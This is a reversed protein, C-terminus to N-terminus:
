SRSTSSPFQHVSPLGYLTWQVPVSTSHSEAVQTGDVDMLKTLLIEWGPAPTSQGGNSWLTVEGDGDTNVIDIGSSREDWSLPRTGPLYRGKIVSAVRVRRPLADTRCSVIKRSSNSGAENNSMASLM